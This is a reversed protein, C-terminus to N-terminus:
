NLKWVKPSLLKEAINWGDVLIMPVKGKLDNLSAEITITKKENPILSLYNDSYYVPLVRNNSHQRRLQLHAM